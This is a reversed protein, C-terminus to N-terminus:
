KEGQILARIIFWPITVRAGSTNHWIEVQMMKGRGNLALTKVIEKGSARYYSTRYLASRYFSARGTLSLAKSITDASLETLGFWYDFYLTLDTEFQVLLELQRPSKYVNPNGLYLYPMKLSWYIATGNDDNGTHMQYMNGDGGGCYIDGNDLELFCYATIGTFRGVINKFDTSYVLIPCSNTAPFSLYYHNLRKHYVGCIDKENSAAAVYTRYLPKNLTDLDDFDLDQNAISSKLSQIGGRSPFALDNGVQAVANGSLTGQRIIQQISISSTTTPVSYIVTFKRLFIVLFTEAFTAYGLIEDGEPLVYSLDLTVADDAASFFDSGFDGDVKSLYTKMPNSTDNIVVRHNHTHCLSSNDPQNADTSLDSVSYSSNCKRAKGGDAMVVNNNFMCAQARVDDSRGGDLSDFVKTSTNYKWWATGARALIDTATTAWVAEFLFRIKPTGSIAGGTNVIDSGERQTIATTKKQPDGYIIYGNLIDVAYEPPCTTPDALTNMGRFQNFVFPKTQPLIRPIVM